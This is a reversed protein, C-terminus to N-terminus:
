SQGRNRRTVVQPLKRFMCSVDPAPISRQEVGTYRRRRGDVLRSLTPMCQKTAQGLRFWGVSAGRKGGNNMGDGVTCNGSLNVSTKSLENGKVVLYALHCVPVPLPPTSLKHM